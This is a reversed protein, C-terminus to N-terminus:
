RAPTTGRGLAQVVAIHGMLDRLSLIGRLRGGEAVILKRQPGGAALRQLAAEATMRPPVICAPDLPAMVDAVRTAAWDGRPVARMLDADVYGIPAEGAVVPVFTIAHPVMIGDGVAALTMDPTITPRM